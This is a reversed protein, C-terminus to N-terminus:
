GSLSAAKVYLAHLFAPEARLSAWAALLALIILSVRLFKMVGFERRSIGDYFTVIPVVNLVFIRRHPSTEYANTMPVCSKSPM